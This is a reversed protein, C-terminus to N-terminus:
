TTIEGVGVWWCHNGGLRAIWPWPKRHEQPAKAARIVVFGMLRNPWSTPQHLARVRFEIQYSVVLDRYVASGVCPPKNRISRLMDRTDENFCPPVYRLGELPSQGLREMERYGTVVTDNAFVMEVLHAHREIVDKCGPQAPEDFGVDSPMRAM